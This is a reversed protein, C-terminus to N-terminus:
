TDIVVAGAIAEEWGNGLSLLPILVPPAPECKFMTLLNFLKRPSLKMSLLLREEVDLLVVVVLLSM